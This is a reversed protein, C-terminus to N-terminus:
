INYKKYLKYNLYKFLTINNIILIINYLKYNLINKVISTYFTNKYLKTKIVM